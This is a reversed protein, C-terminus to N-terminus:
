LGHHLYSSDVWSIVWLAASLVVDLLDPERPMFSCSQHLLQLFASWSQERLTCHRLMQPTFSSLHVQVQSGPYSYLRSLSSSRGWDCIQQKTSCDHRRASSDENQCQSPLSSSESNEASLCLVFDSQDRVTLWASYAKSCPFTPCLQFRIQLMSHYYDCYYSELGFSFGQSSGSVVFQNSATNTPAVVWKLPAKAM